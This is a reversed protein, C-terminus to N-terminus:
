DDPRFRTTGAHRLSAREHKEEAQMGLIEISYMGRDRLVEYEARLKDNRIYVVNQDNSGHGFTLPGTVTNHNYIPVDEPDVLIDDGEYYTVTTQTYGMEERWYEDKHIIYPAEQTRTSEEVDQDWSDEVGSFISQVEPEDTETTTDVGLSHEEQYIQMGRSFGFEEILQDRHRLRELDVEILGPDNEEPSLVIDRVVDETLMPVMVNDESAESAEVVSQLKENFDLIVADLVDSDDPSYVVVVKRPRALYVGLGLGGCFAAVGIGAQRRSLGKAYAQILDFM